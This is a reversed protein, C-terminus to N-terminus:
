VILTTFHEPTGATDWLSLIIHQNDVYIDHVDATVEKLFRSLVIKLFLPNMHKQFFDERSFM